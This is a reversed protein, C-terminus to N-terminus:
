NGFPFETGLRRDLSEAFSRLVQQRAIRTEVNAKAAFGPAAVGGDKGLFEGSPLKLPRRLGTFVSGSGIRRIGRQKFLVAEGIDFGGGIFAIVSWRSFERLASQRRWRRKRRRCTRRAVPLHAPLFQRGPRM